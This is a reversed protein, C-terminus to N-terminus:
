QTDKLWVTKGDKLGFDVLLQEVKMNYEWIELNQKASDRRGWVEEKKTVGRSVLVTGDPRVIDLAMVVIGRMRIAMSPGKEHWGTRWTM